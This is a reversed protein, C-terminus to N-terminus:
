RFGRRKLESIEKIIKKRVINKLEDKIHEKIREESKRIQILHDTTIIFINIVAIILIIVIDRFDM